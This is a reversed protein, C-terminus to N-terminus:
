WEHNYRRTQNRKFYEMIDEMFEEIDRSKRYIRGQFHDKLFNYMIEMREDALKEIVTTIYIPKEKISIIRRWITTQTYEDELTTLSGNIAISETHNELELPVEDPFKLIENQAL